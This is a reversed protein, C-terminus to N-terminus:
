DVGLMRVRYVRGPDGGAGPDLMDFPSAAPTNTVLPTWTPVPEPAYELAYDTHPVGDVTLRAAGGGEVAIAALVPVQIEPDGRWALAFETEMDTSVEIVYNGPLLDHQVVHEVNDVASTSLDVIAGPTFGDAARLTLTMDPMEPLPDWRTPRSNDDVIHRNWVLIVSLEPVRRGAPVEFFYRRVAGVPQVDRAWGSADVLTGAGDSQPGRTLMLYSNYINLEGAGYVEDLPRAPTRDWSVWEDKTAGAM